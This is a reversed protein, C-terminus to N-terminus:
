VEFFYTPYAYLYRNSLGDNDLYSKPTKQKNIALTCQILITSKQWSSHVKEM